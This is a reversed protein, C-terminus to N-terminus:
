RSTVRFTMTPKVPSPSAVQEVAYEDRVETTVSESGNPVRGSNPHRDSPENTGFPPYLAGSGHSEERSQTSLMQRALWPYRRVHDGPRCRKQDACRGCVHAILIDDIV